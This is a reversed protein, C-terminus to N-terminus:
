DTTCDAVSSVSQFIIRDFIGSLDFVSNCYAIIGVELTPGMTRTYGNSLQWTTSGVTRKYLNFTTGSRCIRLEADGSGWAPCVFNSVNDTTSKTEVCLTGGGYGVATHVYNQLGSTDSAPDRAMVGALQYDTSPPVSPNTVSRASATLSVKFDGTVRKYILPGISANYWTGVTPTVHLAGQAVSTTYTSGTLQTWSPDLSTGNFDDSLALLPDVGADLAPAADQASADIMPSADPQPAADLMARADAANADHATADAHGGDPRSAADAGPMADSGTPAADDPPAGDIMDADSDIGGDTGPGTALEHKNQGGPVCAAALLLLVSL